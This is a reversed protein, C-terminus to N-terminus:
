AQIFALVEDSSFDNLNTEAIADPLGEVTENFLSDFQTFNGDLFTLVKAEVSEIDEEAMDEAM